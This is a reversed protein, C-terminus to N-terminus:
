VVVVEQVQPCNPRGPAFMPFYVTTDLDKRMLPKPHFRVVTFATELGLFIKRRKRIPHCSM